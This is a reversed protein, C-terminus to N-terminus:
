TNLCQHKKREVTIELVEDKEPLIFVKKDAVARMHAVLLIDQLASKGQQRAQFEAVQKGSDPDRFLFEEMGVGYAKCLALITGVGPNTSSLRQM